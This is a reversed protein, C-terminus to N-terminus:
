ATEELFEYRHEFLYNFFVHWNLMVQDYVDVKSKRFRESPPWDSLVIEWECKGYFYYQLTREIQRELQRLDSPDTTKKQMFAILHGKCDTLFGHHKFVDYPEIERNIVNEIYVNWAVM